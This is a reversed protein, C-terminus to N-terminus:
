RDHWLFRTPSVVILVREALGSIMEWHPIVDPEERYKRILEITPERVAEGEVLSATGVVQVYDGSVPDDICLVVRPDRRLNHTKATWAATSIWFEGRTWLYWNPTLQPLGNRRVTAVVANPMTRLFEEQRAPDPIAVL